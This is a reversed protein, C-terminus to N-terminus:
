GRLGGYAPASQGAILHQPQHKAHSQEAIFRHMFHGPPQVDTGLAKCRQIQRRAAADALRARPKPRVRYLIKEPLAALMPSGLAVGVIVPLAQLHQGHVARQQAGCVRRFQTRM